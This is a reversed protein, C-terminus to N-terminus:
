ANKWFAMRKAITEEYGQNNPHYYERSVPIYDQAVHNGAYSHPYKYAEGMEKGEAKVHVNRLHEPVEMVRGSAIDASAAGIAM